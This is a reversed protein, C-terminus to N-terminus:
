ASQFLHSLHEAEGPLPNALQLFFRQAFQALAGMCTMQTLVEASVEVLMISWLASLTVIARGMKARLSGGQKLPQQGSHEGWFVGISEVERVVMAHPGQAMTGLGMWGACSMLSVLVPFCLISLYLM